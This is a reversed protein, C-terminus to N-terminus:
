DAAPPSSIRTDHALQQPRPIRQSCSPEGPPGPKRPSEPILAKAPAPPIARCTNEAHRRETNRRRCRLGLRKRDEDIIGAHIPRSIQRVDRDLIEVRDKDAEDVTASQNAGAVQAGLALVSVFVCYSIRKM